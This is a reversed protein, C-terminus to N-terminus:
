FHKCPLGYRLILECSNCPIDLVSQLTGKSHEYKTIEWETTIQDIAYCTVSDALKSFPYQDLTRPLKGGSAAEKLTLDRTKRQITEALRRCAGEITLNKHLDGTTVPHISESRQNSFAGLNPLKRTYARLFQREKPQWYDSLYSIEKQRLMSHLEQRAVEIDAEKSKIFRWVLDHIKKRQEVPYREDAVRKKINQVVHWDCFQLTTTVPLSLPVAAKLGGAQDSIIVRPLPISSIFIRKKLSKFIFEFSVAAESRAFSLSSVFTLGCNSIGATVILVLNLSNTHFTGDILMVFDASFQQALEIQEPLSFWIQQLQQGVVTDDDAFNDGICADWIFGLEDLAALLGNFEDVQASIRRDRINYYSKRNLSFGSQELVRVAKSYSINASRLSSALEVAPQYDPLTKEHQKYRLPNAALTHNHEPEKKIYLVYGWRNSGRKGLQKYSLRISYLCNRANISTSEQKRRSTIKGEDDREVHDELQRTNKSAAGHHICLFIARKKESGSRRVIAFGQSLAWDQLRATCLEINDFM